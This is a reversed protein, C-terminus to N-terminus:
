CSNERVLHFNGSRNVAPCHRELSHGASWCCRSHHLSCHPSAKTQSLHHRPTRLLSDKCGDAGGGGGFNFQDKALVMNTDNSIRVADKATRKNRGIKRKRKKRENRESPVAKKLEEEKTSCKLGELKMRIITQRPLYIM